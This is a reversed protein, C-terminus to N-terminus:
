LTQIVKDPSGFYKQGGMEDLLLCENFAAVLPKENTSVIVTQKELPGSNLATIVKSFEGACGLLPEDIVYLGHRMDGLNICLRMLQQLGNPLEALLAPSLVTNISNSFYEALSFLELSERMDRERMTGNYLEFNERLTGYFFHSEFPVHKISRRYRYNNFQRINYGECLVTGQYNQELGSLVKLLSTKGCGPPGVVTVKSGAKISFELNTLGKPNGPYRHTLGMVQINGAVRDIPPSKELNLRDDDLSMLANVQKASSQISKLRTLANFIGMIPSLAKWVLIIIVIMASPDSLGEMVALVAVVISATGIVQIMAQGTNQIGSNTLDVGSSDKLSQNHAASFRSQIIQLLPLGQISSLKALLENWQYSVMANARSNQAMAQEYKQRAYICYVLMLFVGAVVTVAALGSLLMIAILFIFIFPFDFYALTSEATVLKRFQDIDKLRALQASAGAGSTMAYPLWLLKSTVNYSIYVALDKGSDSLIHMRYQKFKYELAATVIAGATLWMLTPISGSGLAFSYILMIFFPNIAGFISIFFSLATLQQMEKSYRYFCHKIWNSKDQSEPPPERFLRSYRSIHVITYTENNPAQNFLNDNRYDYICLEGTDPDIDSLIGSFGSSSIWCPYDISSLRDCAVNLETEPTYGLRSLTSVFSDEDKDKILLADALIEPTGEWGLAVLSFSLGRSIPHAEFFTDGLPSETFQTLRQEIEDFSVLTSM